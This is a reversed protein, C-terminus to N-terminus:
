VGFRFTPTKKEPMKILSQPIKDFESTKMSRRTKLKPDHQNQTCHLISFESHFISAELECVLVYRVRKFNKLCRGAHM